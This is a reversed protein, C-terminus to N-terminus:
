RKKSARDARDPEWANLYGQAADIAAYIQDALAALHGTDFQDSRRTGELALVIMGGEGRGNADYLIAALTNATHQAQGLCLSAGFAAEAAKEGHGAWQWYAEVSVSEAFMPIARAVDQRIAVLRAARRAMDESPPGRHTPYQPATIEDYAAMLDLSHFGAGQGATEEHEHDTPEADPAAPTDAQVAEARSDCTECKTEPM